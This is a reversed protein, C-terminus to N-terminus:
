KRYKLEKGNGIQILCQRSQSIRMENRQIKEMEKKDKGETQLQELIQAAKLDEIEKFSQKTYVFKPM